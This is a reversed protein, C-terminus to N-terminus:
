NRFADLAAYGVLSRNVIHEKLHHSSKAAPHSVNAHRADLLKARQRFEHADRARPEALRVRVVDRDRALRRVIGHLSPRPTPPAPSFSLAAAVKAAAKRM